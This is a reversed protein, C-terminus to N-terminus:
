SNEKNRLGTKKEQCNAEIGNIKDIPSGITIVSIPLPLVHGSLGKLEYAKATVILAFSTSFSFLVLINMLLGCLKASKGYELTISHLCTTSMALASAFL